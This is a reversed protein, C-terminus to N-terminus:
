TGPHSFRLLIPWVDPTYMLPLRDNLNCPGHLLSNYIASYNWLSEERIYHHSHALLMIPDLIISLCKWHIRLQTPPVQKSLLSSANLDPPLAWAFTHSRFLALTLPKRECLSLFLRIFICGLSLCVIRWKMSHDNSKLPCCAPTLTQESPSM